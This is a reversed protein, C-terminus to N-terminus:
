LRGQGEARSRIGFNLSTLLNPHRWHRACSCLAVDLDPLARRGVCFKAVDDVMLLSHEETFCMLQTREVNRGSRGVAVALQPEHHKM